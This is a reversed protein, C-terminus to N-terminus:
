TNDKLRQKIRKVVEPPLSEEPPVNEREALAEQIQEFSTEGLSQLLVRYASRQEIVDHEPIVQFTM